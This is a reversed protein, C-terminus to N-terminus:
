RTLRRELWQLADARWLERVKAVLVMSDRGSEACGYCTWNGGDPYITFRPSRCWPCQGTRTGDEGETTEIGLDHAIDVTLSRRIIDAAQEDTYEPFPTTAWEEDTM